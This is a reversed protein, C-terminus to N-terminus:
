DEILGEGRLKGIFASVSASAEDEGVEYKELLRSVITREDVEESLSEFIERGVGNLKVLGNFKESDEGVTVAMVSGGVERVVFKYKLKM